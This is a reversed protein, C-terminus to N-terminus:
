LISSTMELLLVSMREIINLGYTKRLYEVYRVNNMTLNIQVARISCGDDKERKSFLSAM